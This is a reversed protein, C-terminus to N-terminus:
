ESGELMKKIIARQREKEEKSVVPMKELVIENSMDYKATPSSPDEQPPQNTKPQNTLKAEQGEPKIYGRIVAEILYGQWQHETKSESGINKRIFESIIYDTFQEPKVRHQAASLKNVWTKPEPKWGVFMEFTRRTPAVYLHSEDSKKFDESANNKNNINPNPNPNPANGECLDLMANADNKSANAHNNSANANGECSDPMAKADEVKSWRKQASLKAKGSKDNMAKIERECREHIYGEETDIFFEDLVTQIDEINDRMCIARAIKKIEPLPSESLYYLDLMRRFALDEILSLHSTHAKYDGIHFAYYNM